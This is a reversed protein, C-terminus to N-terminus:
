KTGKIGNLFLIGELMSPILGDGHDKGPVILKKCIVPSTGAQIMAAYMNETSIPNVQTDSGGHILFLPKETKWASISNRVLADRVTSYKAATKYSSLFDSTILGPISTTLQSSVQDISLMGNFLTSIKSAYPPNFIDTVPNTFQSYSTYANVIYALYAPVPYTSNATMQGLLLGIDYPGAGCVSGRLNFESSYDLELAKHLALTAWGGQSYGILYFDNNLLIGPLEAESLEKVASFFDALSTVTPDKVLYPHVVDTSEGFGPYDAIVVVYGMSAILEVLQYTLGAAVETPANSWLTNTGNQFSLVPYTGPSKPVCMVGSAMIQKEKITTKYVVKYIDIDSQVLPKLGAIEPVSPSVLDILGKLQTRNYSILLDKSEYYTYGSGGDDKSCSFLLVM